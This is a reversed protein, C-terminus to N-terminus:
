CSRRWSSLREMLARAVESHRYADGGDVYDGDYKWDRAGTNYPPDIYICGVKGAHTFRLRKPSRPSEGRQDRRPSESEQDVSGMNSGPYIPEGFEPSWSSIRSSPRSRKTRRLLSLWGTGPSRVVFTTITLATTRVVKVGRRM